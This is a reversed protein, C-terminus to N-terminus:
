ELRVELVHQGPEGPLGAYTDRVTRRTLLTLPRGDLRAGALTRGAPVLISVPGPRNSAWRLRGVGRRADFGWDYSVRAGTSRDELRAALPREGGRVELELRGGRLSVGLLGEVVAQGLAAATGAYRASGKGRDERDYWEYLGGAAASRRAIRSLQLAADEACGARFAATLLRGSFWDWQGGNQYTWEERLIPHRFFGAPFPPLLTAAVTSLGHVRRREEAAALIRCTREPGAVGHLAAVANGGLAFREADSPPLPQGDPRAHIRYFGREEDWLREDIALGVDRAVTEWHRGRDDGAARFLAGLARAAGAYMANAYLGAVRPTQLDDYIARQDGHTPTVDGWDATLPGVLLGGARPERYTGLYLLARELRDVLPLGEVDRRLWTADGIADHVEAAALVASSEQDLESTNRDASLARGARRGVERVAPADAAFASPEGAAIWDWLRGDPSQHALHEVLWSSLRERPELFRAVPLLTASDRIWVQPYHAGAGFGLVPGTVGPLARRNRALTDAVLPALGDLAPEGTRWWLEGPAPGAPRPDRALIGLGAAAVLVV